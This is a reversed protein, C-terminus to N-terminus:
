QMDTKTVDQRHQIHLANRRSERTFYEAKRTQQQNHFKKILLRHHDIPVFEEIGFIKAQERVGRYKVRMKIEM